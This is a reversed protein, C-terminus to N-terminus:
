TGVDGWRFVIQLLLNSLEHKCIRTRVFGEIKLFYIHRVVRLLLLKGYKVASSVKNEITRSINHM